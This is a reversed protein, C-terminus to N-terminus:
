SAGRCFSKKSGYSRHYTEKSTYLLCILYPEASMINCCITCNEGIKIGANRVYNNVVEKDCNKIKYKKKANVDGIKNM